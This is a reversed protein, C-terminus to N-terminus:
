LSRVSRFVSSRSRIKLDLPVGVGLGRSALASLGLVGSLVVSKDALQSRWQDCSVALICFAPDLAAIFTWFTWDGRCVIM